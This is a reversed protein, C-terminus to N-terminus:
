DKEDNNDYRDALDTDDDGDVIDGNRTHVACVRNVACCACTLCLSLYCITAGHSVLVSHLYFLCQVFNQRRM